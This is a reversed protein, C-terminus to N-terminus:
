KDDLRTLKQLPKKTESDINEVDIGSDDSVIASLLEVLNISALHRNIVNGVTDINFELGAIFSEDVQRPCTGSRFASTKLTFCILVVFFVSLVKFFSQQQHKPQFSMTFNM